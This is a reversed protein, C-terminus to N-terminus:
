TAELDDIVDRVFSYSYKARMPSCVTQLNKGPIRQPAGKLHWSPPVIKFTSKLIYHLIEESNGRRTNLMTTDLCGESLKVFKIM